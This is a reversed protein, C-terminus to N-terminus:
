RGPGRGLLKRLFYVIGVAGTRQMPPNHPPGRRNRKAAAEAAILTAYKAPLQKGIRACVDIVEEQEGASGSGFILWVNANLTLVEPPCLERPVTLAREPLERDMDPYGIVDVSDRSLFGLVRGPVARTVAMDRRM